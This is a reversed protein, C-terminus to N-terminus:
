QIYIAKERQIVSQNQLIWAIIEANRYIFIYIVYMRDDIEVLGEILWDIHYNM